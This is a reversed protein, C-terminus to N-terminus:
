LAYNSNLTYCVIITLFSIKLFFFCKKLTIIILKYKRQFFKNKEVPLTAGIVLQCFKQWEM